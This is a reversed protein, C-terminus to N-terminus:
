LAVQESQESTSFSAYAAGAESFFHGLSLGMSSARNDYSVKETPTMLVAVRKTTREPSSLSALKM